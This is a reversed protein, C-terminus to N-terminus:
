GPLPDFLASQFDMIKENKSLKPGPAARRTVRQHKAKSSAISLCAARTAEAPRTLPAQHDFLHGLMGPTNGSVEPGERSALPRKCSGVCEGFQPYLLKDFIVSLIKIKSRDNFFM